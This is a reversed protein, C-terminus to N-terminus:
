PLRGLGSLVRSPSRSPVCARVRALARVQEEAAWQSALRRDADEQAQKAVTAQM